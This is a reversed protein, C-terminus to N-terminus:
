AERVRLRRLSRKVSEINRSRHVGRQGRTYDWTEFREPVNGYIVSYVERGKRNRVYFSGDNRSVINLGAQTTAYSQLLQMPKGDIIDVERHRFLMRERGIELTLYGGEEHVIPAVDGVYIGYVNKKIRAYKTVIAEGLYPRVIESERVLIFDRAKSGGKIAVTHWNSGGTHQQVFTAYSGAFAQGYPIDEKIRVYM